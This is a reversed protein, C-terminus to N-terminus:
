PRQNRFSVSRKQGILFSYSLEIYLLLILQSWFKTVTVDVGLNETYLRFM